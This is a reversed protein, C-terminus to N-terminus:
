IGVLLTFIEKTYNSCGLLYCVFIVNLKCSWKEGSGLRFLAYKLTTYELAVLVIVFTLTCKLAYSHLTGQEKGCGQSTLIM